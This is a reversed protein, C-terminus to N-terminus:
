LSKRSTEVQLLREDTTRHNSFIVLGNFLDEETVNSYLIVFEVMSGRIRCITGHDSGGNRWGLMLSSLISKKSVVTM